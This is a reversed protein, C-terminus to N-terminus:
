EFRAAAYAAQYADQGQFGRRLRPRLDGRLGTWRRRQGPPGRHGGQRVDGAATLRGASRCVFRPVAADLLRPVRRALDPAATRDPCPGGDWRLPPVFGMGSMSVASLSIMSISPQM